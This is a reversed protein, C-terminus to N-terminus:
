SHLFHRLRLSSNAAKPSKQSLCRPLQITTTIIPLNHMSGKISSTQSQNRANRVKKTTNQKTRKRQQQTKNTANEITYRKRYQTKQLANEIYRKTLLANRTQGKQTNHVKQTKRTKHNCRQCSTSLTNETLKQIKQRKLTPHANSKSEQQTNATNTDQHLLLKSCNLLKTCWQCPTNAVM